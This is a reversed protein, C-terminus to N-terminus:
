NFCGKVKKIADMKQKGEKKESESEKQWKSKAAGQRENGSKDCKNKKSEGKNKMRESNQGGM